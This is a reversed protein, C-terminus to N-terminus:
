GLRSDGLSINGIGNSLGHGCLLADSWLIDGRCNLIRHSGLWPDGLSLHGVGNGLCQGCLGTSDSFGLHRARYRAGEGILM